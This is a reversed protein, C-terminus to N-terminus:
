IIRWRGNAAGGATTTEAVLHVTSGGALSITNSTGTNNNGIYDTAAFGSVTVAATGVNIIYYDYGLYAPFTPLTITVTAAVNVSVFKDVNGVMSYAATKVAGFGGLRSGGVVQLNQNVTAAGNLVTSGNFTAAGSVQFAGDGRLSMRLTGAFYWSYQWSTTAAPLVWWIGNTNYGTAADSQGAVLNSRYLMKTGTPRTTTTGPLSPTGADLDLLNSTANTLTVTGASFSKAGSYTEAGSLHGLNSEDLSVTQTGSNYQVPATAAIVGAPGTAGTAGTAGATGQPGTPGTLGTPGAM